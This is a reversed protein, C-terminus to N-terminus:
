DFSVGNRAEIFEVFELDYALRANAWFDLFDLSEFLRAGISMGYGNLGAEDLLGEKYQFYVNELRRMNITKIFFSRREEEVTLAEGSDSKTVLEYYEPVTSNLILMEQNLAALDTRIQARAVRNNQDIEFGVFLMSLIVGTAALLEKWNSFNM